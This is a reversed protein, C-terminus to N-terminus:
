TLFSIDQDGYAKKHLEKIKGNSVVLAITNQFDEQYDNAIAEYTIGDEYQKVEEGIKVKM